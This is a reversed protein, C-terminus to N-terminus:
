ASGASTLSLTLARASRDVTSSEIRHRIMSVEVSTFPLGSVEFSCPPPESTSRSSSSSSAVAFADLNFASFSAEVAFDVSGTLMNRFKLAESDSYSEEWVGDGAGGAGAGAGVASGVRSEGDVERRRAAMEVGVLVMRLGAFSNRFSTEVRRVVDNASLFASRWDRSGGRGDGVGGDKGAVVSASCVTVGMTDGLTTSASGSGCLWCGDVGTGKVSGGGMDIATSSWM